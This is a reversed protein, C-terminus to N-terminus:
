RVLLSVADCWAGVVKAVTASVRFLYTTLPTLGEIITTALPTSAASTWTKGGDASYQWNYSAHKKVGRGVLLTANARLEVSGSQPVLKAQLVPKSRVPRKAVTMGAAAILAEAQEPNADCQTQVYTRLGELSTVVAARSVNRQPITGKARTVTAQQKADLDQIQADVAALPPNINPFQSANTKMATVIARAIALLQAVKKTPIKLVVRIRQITTM